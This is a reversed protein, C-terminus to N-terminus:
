PLKQFAVNRARTVTVKLGTIQKQNRQFQITAGGLGRSTASVKFTDQDTPTLALDVGPAQHLMLKGAKESIQFTAQAEDSYYKGIYPQLSGAPNTNKPMVTTQSEAKPDDKRDSRDSVFLSELQKIVNNATGDFESTNSLWAISLNAEPYRILIARYSATSGTHYVYKQGKNQTVYLGAAYPYSTGDNFVEVTLQNTLLSPRGFHGNWYYENWKLLDETTTLLGGNGYVYENPMDTEYGSTTKEYAIARNPVIRKFNDRWQTHTMGAPAFIYKRTYDALSLGSVREVLIAFLNYNSNSYLFEDGPKHNLAKQHAIIDLADDNSYTKTTRPWGAIGAVSGWDRLGSSHHMMRRLTVPTGYDPLEPIYKRIDDDLALKGQQELLLVAAATFQKSVSGSEIISETTLPIQHELDAMGWAKSFLVQGNRTVALQCGPNQPLYRNFITEIRAITDSSLRSQALASYSFTSLFLIVFLKKM